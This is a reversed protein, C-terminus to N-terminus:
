PRPLRPIGLYRGVGRSYSEVDAISRTEISARDESQAQMRSTERDLMKEFDATNKDSKEAIKICCWARIYNVERADVVDTDLVLLALYPTYTHRYTQGTPPPPYLVINSGAIRYACAYGGPVQFDLRRRFDIAILPEYFGTTALWEVGKTLNHDAPLPYVGSGAPAVENTPTVITQVTEDFDPDARRLLERVEPRADNILRLLEAEGKHPDSETDTMSRIGAKLEAVTVTRAM